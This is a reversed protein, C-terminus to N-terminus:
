KKKQWSMLRSRILDLVVLFRKDFVCHPTFVLVRKSGRMFGNTFYLKSEPSLPEAGVFVVLDDAFGCEAGIIVVFSM